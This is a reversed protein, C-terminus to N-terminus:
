SRWGSRFGVPAGREHLFLGAEPDGTNLYLRNPEGAASGDNGVRLDLDGDGDVDGLAVTDPSNLNNVGGAATVSQIPDTFDGGGENFYIRTDVNDRAAVIDLDGDRDLDGLVISSVAFNVEAAAGPDSLTAETFEGFGNNRFVRVYGGNIGLVVDMDGDGDVDGAAISNAKLNAGGLEVLDGSTFPAPFGTGNNFMIYSAQGGSFEAFAVDEFGDANFDAIVASRSNGGDSYPGPFTSGALFGGFGDNFYVTNKITGAPDARNGFVLDPSGDGDLDGVAVARSDATDLADIVASLTAPSFGGTLSQV